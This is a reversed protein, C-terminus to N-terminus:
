DVYQTTDTRWWRLQDFGRQLLRQFNRLAWARQKAPTTSYLLKM